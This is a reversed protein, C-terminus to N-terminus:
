SAEVNVWFQELDNELSQTADNSVNEYVYTGGYGMLMDIKYKESTSTKAFRPTLNRGLHIGSGHREWTDGRYRACKNGLITGM